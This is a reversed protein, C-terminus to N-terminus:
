NNEGAKTQKQATQSMTAVGAEAGTIGAEIWEFLWRNLFYFSRSTTEKQGPLMELSKAVSALISNPKLFVLIPNILLILNSKQSAELM